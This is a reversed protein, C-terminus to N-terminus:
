EWTCRAEDNLFISLTCQSSKHKHQNRWLGLYIYHQANLMIVSKVLKLCTSIVESWFSNIAELCVVSRRLGIRTRWIKCVSPQFKKVTKWMLFFFFSEVSSLSFTWTKLCTWLFRSLMWLTDSISHTYIYILQFFKVILFNESNM